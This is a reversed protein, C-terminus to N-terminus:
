EEPGFCEQYAACQECSPARCVYGGERECLQKYFFKKWKMDKTNKLALDRFNNLLLDGLMARNPLGLDRWLHDGGMCAAAVIEAMWEVSADIVTADLLLLDKIEQWEDLRMELLSQRLDDDEAQTAFLDNYIQHDESRKGLFLYLANKFQTQHKPSLGLNHPLCTLGQRQSRVIELFIRCNFFHLQNSNNEKSVSQDARYRNQENGSLTQASDHSFYETTSGLFDKIKGSLILKHVLNNM